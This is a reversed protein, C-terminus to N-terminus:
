PGNGAIVAIKLVNPFLGFWEDAEAESKADNYSAKAEAESNGAEMSTKGLGVKAARYSIYSDRLANSRWGGVM